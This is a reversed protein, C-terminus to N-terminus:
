WEAAEIPSLLTAKRQLWVAALEIVLSLIYPIFSDEGYLRMAIIAALPRLMLLMEGVMEWFTLRKKTFESPVPVSTVLQIKKGNPLEEFM